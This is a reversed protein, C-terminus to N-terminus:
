RRASDRLPDRADTGASRALKWWGGLPLTPDYTAADNSGPAKCVTIDSLVLQKTDAPGPLVGSAILAAENPDAVIMMGYLGRFVRNTSHHHHPHCWYLGPRPVKFKYLYTGGAPAPPASPMAFKPVAGDQTVPTGDASNALEIGHWHIGTEYPLENLLRVIVTDGVNLRLTPGPIAGNYTEAKTTLGGGIDVATLAATITTEFVAAAPSTDIANPVVYPGIGTTM